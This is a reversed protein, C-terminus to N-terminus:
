KEICSNASWDPAWTGILEIKRSTARKNDRYNKDQNLLETQKEKVYNGGPMNNDTSKTVQSRFNYPIILFTVTNNDNFAIRMIFFYLIAFVVSCNDDDAISGIFIDKFLGTNL